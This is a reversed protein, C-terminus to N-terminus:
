LRCAPNEWVPVCRLDFFAQASVISMIMSDIRPHSWGGLSQMAGALGCSM